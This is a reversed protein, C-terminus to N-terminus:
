RRGGVAQELQPTPQSAELSLTNMPPQHEFEKLTAKLDTTFREMGHSHGIITPTLHRYPRSSPQHKDWRGVMGVVAMGMHGRTLGPHGITHGVGAMSLCMQNQDVLVRSLHYLTLLLCWGRTIEEDLM